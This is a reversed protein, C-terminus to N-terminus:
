FIKLSKAEKKFYEVSVMFRRCLHKVFENQSLYSHASRCDKGKAYYLILPRSMKKIEEIKDPIIQYPINISDEIHGESFVNENRLDVM